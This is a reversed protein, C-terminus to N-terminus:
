KNLKTLQSYSTLLDSFLILADVAANDRAASYSTTIYTM